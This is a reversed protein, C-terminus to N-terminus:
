CLIEGISLSTAKIYAYIENEKKLELRKLSNTTIISEFEFDEYCLRVVSLIEGIDMNKIKAKIENSLSSNLPTKSIIVDSSKFSLKVLSNISLNKPTELGLMRLRLEGCEFDILSVNEHTQIKKVRFEMAM